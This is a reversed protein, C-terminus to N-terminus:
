QCSEKKQKWKRKDTREPYIHGVKTSQLPFYQEPPLVSVRLERLEGHRERFLERKQNTKKSRTKTVVAGGGPGEPTAIAGKTGMRVQEMRVITRTTHRKVQFSVTYVPKGVRRTRRPKGGAEGRDAGWERAGNGATKGGRRENVGAWERAWGL